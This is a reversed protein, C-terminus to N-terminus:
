RAIAGIMKEIGTLAVPQEQVHFMRRGPGGRIEPVVSHKGFGRLVHRETTQDESGPYSTPPNTRSEKGVEARHLAADLDHVRLFPEVGASGVRHAAESLAAESGADQNRLRFIEQGRVGSTAPTEGRMM